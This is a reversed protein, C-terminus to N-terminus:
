SKTAKVLADNGHRRLKFAEQDSGLATALEAGGGRWPDHVVSFNRGGTVERPQTFCWDILGRIEAM